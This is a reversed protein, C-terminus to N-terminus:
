NKSAIYKNNAFQYSDILKYFLIIAIANIESICCKALPM